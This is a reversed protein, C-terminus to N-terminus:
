QPQEVGSEAGKARQLATWVEATRQNQKSFDEEAQQKQQPDAKGGHFANFRKEQLDLLHEAEEHHLAELDGAPMQALSPDVKRPAETGPEAVAPADEGADDAEAAAAGGADGRYIEPDPVDDKLSKIRSKAVIMDVGARVLHVQEGDNWHSEVTLTTGDTLEVLEGARAGCVSAVLVFAALVRRM